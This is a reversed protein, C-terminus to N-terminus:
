NTEDRPPTRKEGAAKLGDRVIVDGDDGWAQDETERWKGSPVATDKRPIPRNRVPYTM